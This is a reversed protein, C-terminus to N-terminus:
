KELVKVQLPDECNELLKKQTKHLIPHIFDPALEVLPVLTFRRTAIRPHPVILNPEEVIDQNYYLIDIDITRAGWKELRQRELTTEIQQTTTLLQIPSLSTDVIVIQNFYDPQATRGWAATQYILSQEAIRGVKEQLLTKARTLYASRDGLNSGLLLFVHNM